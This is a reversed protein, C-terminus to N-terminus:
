SFLVERELKHTFSSRKGREDITACCVPACDYDNVQIDRRGEEGCVPIEDDM